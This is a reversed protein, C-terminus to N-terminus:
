NRGTPNYYQCFNPDVYLFLSSQFHCFHLYIHLSKNIAKFSVGNELAFITDMYQPM